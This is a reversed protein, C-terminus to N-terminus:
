GVLVKVLGNQIRSLTIKYSTTLSGDIGLNNVVIQTKFSFYDPPSYMTKEDKIGLNDFVIKTKSNFYDPPSYM